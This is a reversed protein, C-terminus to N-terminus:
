KATQSGDRLWLGAYAQRQIARARPEVAHVNLGMRNYHMHLLSKFISALSKGLNGSEELDRYENIAEMIPSTRTSVANLSGAIAKVHERDETSMPRRAAHHMPSDFWPRPDGDQVFARVLYDASRIAERFREQSGSKTESLAALVVDSDYCFVREAIEIARPHAGYRELEREYTHFSFHSILKGRLLANAFETVKALLADMQSQTKFRVRLHRKKDVYRLFFWQNILETRRLEEVFPALYKSLITEGEWGCYLHVYLWESGPAFQRRGRSPVISQTAGERPENLSASLVYEAVFREKGDSLWVDSTELWEQFRLVTTSRDLADEITALGLQSDLNLPIKNDGESLLVYKPVNWKQRWEDVECRLNGASRWASADVNWRKPSIIINNYSIRPLMPATRISAWDFPLVERVRDFSLCNLFRVLTPETHTTLVDSTHVRVRKAKSASYLFFAGSKDDLGVYLDRLDLAEGPGNHHHGLALHYPYASPRTCVNGYRAKTPLYSLEAHLVSKDAVNRQFNAVHGRQQDDFLYLFRGLTRAAGTVPLLGSLAVKYKGQVVDEFSNALVQFGIEFAEPRERDRIEPPFLEAVEAASLALETRGDHLAPWILKLLRTARVDDTPKNIAPPEGVGWDEDVFELLPVLRDTGEYIEIFRKRYHDLGDSRAGRLLLEGLFAADDLVAQPLRGSVNRRADTQIPHPVETLRSMADTVRPIADADWAKISKGQLSDLAQEVIKIEAALTKMRPSVNVIRRLQAWPNGLLDPRLESLLLGADWLSAVLNSARSESVSFREALETSLESWVVGGQARETCYRVSEIYRMATPRYQSMVRAPSRLHARQRFNTVHIYDGRVVHADNTYLVLGARLEPDNEIIETLSHLWEMDPRSYARVDPDCVLKGSARPDLIDIAAYAGFPTPRTAMRLILASVKEFFKRNKPASGSLWRRVTEYLSPSGIQICALIRPDDRLVECLQELSFEDDLVRVASEIGISCVRVAVLPEPGTSYKLSAKGLAGRDIQNTKLM